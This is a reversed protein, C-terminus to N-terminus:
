VAHKIVHAISSLDLPFSILNYELRFAPVSKIFDCLYALQRYHCRNHLLLFKSCIFFFLFLKFIRGKSFDLYSNAKRQLEFPSQIFLCFFNLKLFTKTKKDNTQLFFSMLYQREGKDEQDKMIQLAVFCLLLM